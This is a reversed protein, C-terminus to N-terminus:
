AIGAGGTVKKFYDELTDECTHAESVYAGSEMFAITIKSVPITTEYLRISNNDEVRFNNTKFDQELVRSAQATDTVIFHIYKRNKQELEELSEEEM